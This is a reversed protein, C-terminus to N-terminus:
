LWLVRWFCAFLFQAGFGDRSLALEQLKSMVKPVDASATTATM